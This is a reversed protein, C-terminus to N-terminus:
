QKVVKRKKNYETLSAIGFGGSISGLLIFFGIVWIMESSYVVYYFGAYMLVSAILLLGIGIVLYKQTDNM